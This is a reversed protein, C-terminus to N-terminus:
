TTELRIKFVNFKEIGPSRSEFRLSSVNLRDAIYQSLVQKPTESKFGCWSAAVAGTLLDCIQALPSETSDIATLDAIWARGSVKRELIQKLTSYRGATKNTKQDLLILYRGDAVLWKELMEYYFKYFGLERDSGHFKEYNAQSDDVVIVRFRLQSHELFFDVLKKYADLKKASVKSWKCEARLGISRQLVRLKRTLDAKLSRPVWLGGIAMFPDAAGGDHRSEDCYVVFENAM